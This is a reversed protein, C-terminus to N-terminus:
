ENLKIQTISFREDAHYQLMGRLLKTLHEGCEEPIKYTGAVINEFLKYINEGEYPYKGTTFNYRFSWLWWFILLDNKCTDMM